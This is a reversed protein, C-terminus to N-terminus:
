YHQKTNIANVANTTSSGENTESYWKKVVANNEIDILASVVVPKKDSSSWTVSFLTKEVGGYKESDDSLIRKVTPESYIKYIMLKQRIEGDNLAANVASIKDRESVAMLVYSQLIIEKDTPDYLFLYKDMFPASISVCEVKVEYDNNKRGVSINIKKYALGASPSISNMVAKKIEQKLEYSIGADSNVSIESIEQTSNGDNAGANAINGGASNNNVPTKGKEEVCGSIFISATLILIVISNLILNKM